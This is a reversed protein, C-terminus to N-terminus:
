KSELLLKEALPSAPGLVVASHYNRMMKLRGLLYLLERTSLGGDMGDYNFAKDLVSLSVIIEVSSFQQCWEMVSDCFHVIGESEILSLPFHKAGQVPLGIVVECPLLDRGTFFVKAM